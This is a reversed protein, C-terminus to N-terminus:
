LKVTERLSPIHCNYGKRKLKSKLSESSKKEGHTIFVREPKKKFGKIWKILEKYDAHASLSEISYIKSKVKLNENMIEIQKKGQLIERGTTGEAQYGVFLISNKSDEINHKLHHLIRGGTVMGSGAIIICPDQYNNIKKSDKVSSTTKLKNFRFPNEIKGIKKNFIEQHKDFIKTVKIALPSDLFVKENPFKGKKQLIKFGYLLQQTREVAFSPI